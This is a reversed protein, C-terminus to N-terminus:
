IITSQMKQMETENIEQAALMVDTSLDGLKISLRNLRYAVDEIAADMGRVESSKWASDIADKYRLMKRKALLMEDAVMDLEKQQVRIVDLDIAM